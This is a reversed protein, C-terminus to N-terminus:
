YKFHDLILHGDSNMRGLADFLPFNSFVTAMIETVIFQEGAEALSLLAFQKDGSSIKRPDPDIWRVQKGKLRYLGRPYTQRVIHPNQRTPFVSILLLTGRFDPAPLGHFRFSDRLPNRLASDRVFGTGIEPDLSLSPFKFLHATANSLRPNCEILFLEESDSSIIFDINAFGFFGESRLAEGTARFTSNITAQIAPGLESNPTWQIGLFHGHNSTYHESFCQERLASLSITESGVLVTIGYTKGEIRQRALYHRGPRIKGSDLLTQAEKGDRLFFTGQGGLSVPKQLVVLGKLTIPSKPFLVRESPPKPLHHRALFADFRLKDEFKRQTKLDTSLTRIRHKRSWSEIFPSSQGTLWLHRIGSRKMLATVDSHKLIAESGLACLNGRKLTYLLFDKPDLFQRMWREEETGRAVLFIFRFGSPPTLMLSDIGLSFVGIKITKM